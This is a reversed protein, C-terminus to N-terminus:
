LSDLDDDADIEGNILCNIFFSAIREPNSNVKSPDSTPPIFSISVRNKQYSIADRKKITIFDITMIINNMVTLM